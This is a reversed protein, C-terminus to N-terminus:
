RLKLLQAFGRFGCRTMWSPNRQSLVVHVKCPLPTVPHFHPVWGNQIVRATDHDALILDAGWDSAMRGLEEGPHGTIVTCDTVQESSLGVHRRLRERLAEANERFREEPSSSPTDLHDFLTVFRSQAGSERALRLAAGTVEENADFLDIVAIIRRLGNM